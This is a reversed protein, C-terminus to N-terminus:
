LKATLNFAVVRGVADYVQPYTNGNVETAGQTRIPPDKDFLNNLALRATINKTLKYSFALDMYNRAALNEVQLATVAEHKVSAIHRLTTAVNLGWPTNWTLRLKHRWEPRPTGCNDGFKGSCERDSVPNTSRDKDLYTAVFNANLSGFGGLKYNVDGALDIGRTALTGANFDTNTIASGALFLSQTASDRKILGCTAAAGTKLCNDLINAAGFAGIRDEVKIDFYDVQITVDRMPELVFGFTTSTAKEPSLTSNGGSIQNYQGAPSEPITGYAAQTVGTRQCQALTASPTATACPDGAALDFLGLSQAAFLEIVNAARSAQQYSARLKVPRIPAYELGLGFTDTAKGTSYTSKRYSARLNLFEAFPQKEMLPLNLEGFVDNVSFSGAVGITPGGQGALDGTTFAADTRLEMKETRREFGAAWSIGGRALPSKFGADTLDGSLTAGGVAQSTSGSQFGPTQVYSLAQPTVGGLQWINWPVCNPDSGDVVSQCVAKGNADAVVDLSRRTRATSFDNFYTNQYLVRGAQIFVDYSLNPNIDGKVGLVGRYSTHRLDDQRGGGEVNRRGIFLTHTDGPALFNTPDPDFILEGAPDLVPNGNADVRVKTRGQNSAHFANKFQQSLLPNEFKVTVPDLFLGSPAIQAVTRDDHFNLEGYLKATTALDYNIYAAATYRNSPRQFYNLPGFNYQDTAGSFNRTGGAANAVSLNYAGAETDPDRFDTFRGPFATSSGGCSFGGFANGANAGNYNLACGTFDRQSQLLADTNKRGIFFTANGKNDAFNSGITIAFDKTKGDASIDGPVKFQAANTAARSAILAQLKDQQQEHMNFQYNAEVEVGEFKDNMIFNVVGAVADSGYLASAGGTLVDVRKILSVPIQNLDAALVRPSGAPMRRGNILVLTRDAGLGRLNVTATGTAGNSVSGGQDAFVSPLNNLLGEVDRKAEVRIAEAGLSIIPSATEPNVTKIRSGTVEVRELQQAPQAPAAQQALVPAAVGLAILAAVNVSKRKFMPLEKM